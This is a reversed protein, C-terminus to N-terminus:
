SSLSLYMLHLMHLEPILSAVRTLVKQDYGIREWVRPGVNWPDSTRKFKLQRTQMPRSAGDAAERGVRADAASVARPAATSRSNVASRKRKRSGGLVPRETREQGNDSTAGDPTHDKKFFVGRYHRTLAPIVNEFFLHMSDPPFSRPFDISPLQALVALGAIGTMDAAEKHGTEEIHKADERFEFNTRMPLDDQDYWEWPGQDVTDPPDM